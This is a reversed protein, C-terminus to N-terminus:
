EECVDESFVRSLIKFFNWCSGGIVDLVLMWFYSIFFLRIKVKWCVVDRFGRDEGVFFSRLCEKLSCINVIVLCLLYGM